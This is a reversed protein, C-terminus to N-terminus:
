MLSNCVSQAELHRAGRDENIQKAIGYALDFNESKYLAYAHELQAHTKLKEGSEEFFNLADNYRELKLLAIVKAHQAELNGKTQALTANCAQLIEEHDEITARKLLANLNAIGIAMVICTVLWTVSPNMLTSLVGQLIKVTCNGVNHLVDLAM